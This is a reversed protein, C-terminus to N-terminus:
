SIPSYVLSGAYKNLDIEHDFLLVDTWYTELDNEVTHLHVSGSPLQDTVEFYNCKRKIPAYPPILVDIFASPSSAGIVQHINGHSPDLVAVKNNEVNINYPPLSECIFLDSKVTEKPTFAEITLSGHICKLFGYMGPHDHLPIRQDPRLVFVSISLLKASLINMWLVPAPSNIYINKNQNSVPTTPKFISLNVDQKTIPKLASIIEMKSKSSLQLSGNNLIGMVSKILNTLNASLVM